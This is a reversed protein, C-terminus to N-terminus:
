GGIREFVHSAYTARAFPLDLARVVHFRLGGDRGIVVSVYSENRRGGDYAWTTRLSTGAYTGSQFTRGPESFVLSWRGGRLTLTATGARNDARHAGARRLDGDTIRARYVGDPVPSRVGRARLSPRRPRGCGSPLALAADGATTRRLRQIRRIASRTRSSQELQAYVKRLARRLAALDRRSATAFRVGAACLELVLRQEDRNGLTTSYNAAQSAAKEIWARENAPLAQLREPNAVLVAARPWLVVNATIWPDVEACDPAESRCGAGYRDFFITDLDDEFAAAGGGPDAYLADVFDHYMPVRFAHLARSALGATTQRIRSRVTIVGHVGFSLHRLDEPRRMAQGIGVLRSLPGSLLALGRLGVSGTGALMQPALSSRLVARELADDDVLMPAHLADFSRVGLQEFSSTHAWGLDVRGHAVDLLLQKEHGPAWREDVAIRLRRNSLKAVRDAFFAVAPDHEIGALDASALRLTRMPKHRAGSCGTVAVLAVVAALACVHRVVAGTRFSADRRGAPL